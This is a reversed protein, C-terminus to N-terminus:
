TETVWESHLSNVEYRLLCRRRINEKYKIFINHHFISCAWCQAQPDQYTVSEEQGRPM